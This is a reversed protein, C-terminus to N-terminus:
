QTSIVSRASRPTSRSSLKDQCVPTGNVGITGGAGWIAKLTPYGLVRVGIYVATRAFRAQAISALASPQDNM